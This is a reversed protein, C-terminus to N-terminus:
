EVNRVQERLREIHGKITVLRQSIEGDKAKAAMTNTERYMEQALFDLTRGAPERSSIAEEAAKLHLKMRCIEEAIDSREAFIAAEQELRERDLERELLERVHEALREKYLPVLKPAREEVRLLETRIAEVLRILESALGEGERRRMDQAAAIAEKLAAEVLPWLGEPDQPLPKLAGGLGLLHDLSISDDLALERALEQLANYYQRALDSDFRLKAEGEPSLEIAADVRGRHFSGQLLKRVRLELVEHEELGRVQIDLYRHNLTKVKVSVSWGEGRAEGEGYGTMSLIM